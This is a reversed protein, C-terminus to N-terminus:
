LFHKQYLKFAEKSQEPLYNYINKPSNNLDNLLTDFFINLKVEKLQKPFVMIKWNNVFHVMLHHILM